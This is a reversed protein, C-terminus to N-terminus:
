ELIMTSIRYSVNKPVYPQNNNKRNIVRYYTVDDIEDTKNSTLRLILSTETGIEDLIKNRVNQGYVIQQFRLESSSPIFGTNGGTLGTVIFDKPNIAFTYVKQFNHRTMNIFDPIVAKTFDSMFQLYVNLKHNTTFHLKHFNLGAYSYANLEVANSIEEYTFPYIEKISDKNGNFDEIFAQYIDSSVFLGQMWKNNVLSFEPNPEFGNLLKSIKKLRLNLKQNHICRTLIENRITTLENTTLKDKFNQPIKSYIFDENSLTMIELINDFKNQYVIPNLYSREGKYNLSGINNSVDLGNVIKNTQKQILADKLSVGNDISLAAENLEFTSYFSNIAIPPNENTIDDISQIKLINRHQLFVNEIDDFASCYEFIKPEWIIEPFDHDTMEVKILIIDDKDLEYENNIGVSLIHSGILTESQNPIIWADNSIKQYNNNIKNKFDLNDLSTDTKLSYWLDKIYFDDFYSMLFEGNENRNNLTAIKDVFRNLGNNFIDQVTKINVINKFSKLKILSKIYNKQLKLNDISLEFLNTDLNAFGSLNRRADTVDLNFNNISIKENRLANLKQLNKEIDNIFNDYYYLLIDFSMSLGLDNVILGYIVHNYWNLNIDVYKQDFMSQNINTKLNLDLRPILVTEKLNMFNQDYSYNEKLGSLRTFTENNLITSPDISLNASNANINFNNSNGLTTNATNNQNNITKKFLTNEYNLSFDFSNEIILDFINSSNLKSIINYNKKNAVGQDNEFDRFNIGIKQSILSQANGSDATQRGLERTIRTPPTQVLLEFPLSNEQIYEEFLEIPILDSRVRRTLNGLNIESDSISQQLTRREVEFLDINILADQLKIIEEDSITFPREPSQRNAINRWQQLSLDSNNGAKFLNMMTLNPTLDLQYDIEGDNFNYVGPILQFLTSDYLNFLEFPNSMFELVNNNGFTRLLNDRSLQRAPNEKLYDYLRVVRTYLFDNSETFTNNDDSTWKIKQALLHEMLIHIENKEIGLVENLFYIFKKSAFSRYQRFEEYTFHTYLDVDNLFVNSYHGWSKKSYLQMLSDTENISEPSISQMSAQNSYSNEYFYNSESIRDALATYSQLNNFMKCYISSAIKLTNKILFKIDLLKNNTTNLIQSFFTNASVTLTLTNILDKFLNGIQYFINNDLANNELQTQYPNNFNLVNLFSNQTVFNYSLQNLIESSTAGFTDILIQILDYSTANSTNSYTEAMASNYIFYEFKYQNNGYFIKKFSLQPIFYYESNQISGDSNYKRYTNFGSLLINKKRENFTDLPGIYDLDFKDSLKHGSNHSINLNNDLLQAPVSLFHESKGNTEFVSMTNNYYQNYRKSIDSQNIVALNKSNTLYTTASQQEATFFSFFPAIEMISAASPGENMIVREAENSYTSKLSNLGKNSIYLFAILLNVFNEQFKERNEKSMEKCSDNFLWFISANNLLDARDTSVKTKNKKSLHWKFNKSCLNKIEQFFTASNKFAAHEDSYYDKIFKKVTDKHNVRQNKVNNINFSETNIQRNLNITNPFNISIFDDANMEGLLTNNVIILEHNIKNNKKNFIEFINDQNNFSDVFNTITTNYSNIKLISDILSSAKINYEVKIRVNNNKSLFPNIKNLNNDVSSDLGGNIAHKKYKKVINNCILRTKIISSTFNEIDEFKYNLIGKKNTDIVSRFKINSYDPRNNVKNVVGYTLKLQNSNVHNAILNLGQLYSLNPKKTIGVLNKKNVSTITNLLVEHPLQAKTSEDSSFNSIQDITDLAAKSSFNFNNNEANNSCLFNEFSFIDTPIKENLSKKANKIENLALNFQDILQALEQNNIYEFEDVYKLPLIEKTIDKEIVPTNTLEVFKLKSNLESETYIGAFLSNCSMYDFSNEIINNISTSLAMLSLPKTHNQLLNLNDAIIFNFGAYTELFKIPNKVIKNYLNVLKKDQITDNLNLNELNKITTSLSSTEALLVSDDTIDAPYAKLLFSHLLDFRNKKSNKISNSILSLEDGFLDNENKIEYILREINSFVATNKVSFNNFINIFNAFSQDNIKRNAVDKFIKRHQDFRQKFNIDLEFKLDSFDYDSTENQLNIFQLLESRINIKRNKENFSNINELDKKFIAM